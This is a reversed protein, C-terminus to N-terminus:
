NARSTYLSYLRAAITGGFVKHISGLLATRIHFIMEPRHLRALVLANRFDTPEDFEAASMALTMYLASLEAEIAKDAHEVASLVRKVSALSRFGSQIGRRQGFQSSIREGGHQRFFYLPTKTAYYSDICLALRVQLELDQWRRLSEAWPGSACLVSRRHLGASPLFQPVFLNNTMATVQGNQELAEGTSGKVIADEDDFRCLPSWASGCEEHRRLGAVGISLKQSHLIDDSDLSQIFEGNSELLGRNRATPAGANKQSLLKFEFSGKLEYESAIRRSVEITKDSSGDDVVILEIPRYTQNGVSRICAEILNERQYVPIIVSALDHQYEPDMWTKFQSEPWLSEIERKSTM